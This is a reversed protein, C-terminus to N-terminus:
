ISIRRQVLPFMYAEKVNLNVMRVVRFRSTDDRHCWIFEDYIKHCIDKHGIHNQGIHDCGM